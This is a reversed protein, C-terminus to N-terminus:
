KRKIPTYDIELCDKVYSYSSNTFFFTDRENYGKVGKALKAVEWDTDINAKVWYYNGDILEIKGM